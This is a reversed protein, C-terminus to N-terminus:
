DNRLGVFTLNKNKYDNIVQDITELSPEVTSVYKKGQPLNVLLLSPPNAELQLYDYIRKRMDLNSQDNAATLMVVVQDEDKESKYKELLQLLKPQIENVEEITPFNVILAPSRTLRQSASNSLRVVPKPIWPFDKGEPDESVYSRADRSLITGDHKIFVLTPIGEVDFLDSLEAGRPDEFPFSIWPMEEYYEQFADEDKDSSVFIIEFNKKM